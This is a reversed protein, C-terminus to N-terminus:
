GGRLRVARPGLQRRRVRPGNPADETQFLLDFQEPAACAVDETTGVLVLPVRRALQALAVLARSLDDPALRDLGAPVVMSGLGLGSDAALEAMVIRAALELAAVDSGARRRGEVWEAYLAPFADDLRGGALSLTRAEVLARFRERAPADARPRTKSPQGAGADPAAAKSLDAVTAALKLSRAEATRLSAPKLELQDRRRRWWRGDRVMDEWEERRAALVKDFRSGLPRGCAGCPADPGGADIEALRAKLERGRDRYLLLRTEADQRERVWAVTGAELDGKAEAAEEVLTRLQEGPDAAARPPQILKAGAAQWQDVSGAGCWLAALEDSRLAHDSRLGHPTPRDADRAHALAARAADLLADDDGVFGALGRADALESGDTGLARGLRELLLAADPSPTTPAPSPTSSTPSPTSSTPSPTSSPLPMAMSGPTQRVQSKDDAGSEAGDAPASGVAPRANVPCFSVDDTDLRALLFGGNSAALPGAYHVRASVRRRAPASGMAVYDWGTANLVPTSSEADALAAHVVLVNWKARPDPAVTSADPVALAGHPVLTASLAGDAVRVRRVSACAVEVCELAGALALPGPREPDLPTDRAGAAVAVVVDPLRERLDAITECFAGVASASVGPHDFVDGAVVVLRPRLEAVQAFAARLARVSDRARGGTGVGVGAGVGAGEGRGLHLGSLHAVKM